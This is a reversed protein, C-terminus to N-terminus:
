SDLLLAEQELGANHREILTLICRVEPLPSARLGPLLSQSAARRLLGTNSFRSFAVELGSPLHLAARGGLASRVRVFESLGVPDYDPLHILRFDPHAIGALWNLVRTSVRGGAYLAVPISSTLGLREFAFLMAPNEVLACPVRLEYRSNPALVFSFVGHMTTATAAPVRVDDRWLAENSWARLMVIDSTDAALAKSDRFRAVGVIRSHTGKSTAADPFRAKVFHQLAPMDCVVLRRGTGSREEVVVGGILPKLLKLFAGSCASKPLSGQQLLTALKSMISENVTM